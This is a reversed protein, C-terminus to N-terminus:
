DAASLAVQANLLHEVYRSSYPKLNPSVLFHDFRRGVGRRNYWSYARKLAVTRSLRQDIAEYVAGMGGRGLQRVIRYRGQLITAPSLM